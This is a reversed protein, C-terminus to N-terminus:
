SFYLLKFLQILPSRALARLSAASEAWFIPALETQWWGRGHPAGIQRRCCSHIPLVQGQGPHVPMTKPIILALVIM